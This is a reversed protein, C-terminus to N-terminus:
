VAHASGFGPTGMSKKNEAKQTPIGYHTLPYKRNTDEPMDPM